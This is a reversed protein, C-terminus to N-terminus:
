FTVKASAVFRSDCAFLPGKCFNPSTPQNGVNPIDTDWYRFDIALKDLGLTVGANWYMYSDKGNAAVFPDKVDKADGMVSGLTGSVTPVIKMVAPLEYAVTGELTTTFGQGGTYQPSLFATLSTTLKPVFTASAGIKAETYDQERGQLVKPGGDKGGWYTYQIVGFDFTVPGLVPKIGAYFDVEVNALASGDNNAGFNVDSGWVGAYFIGYTMDVGGQFAPRERNQSIGRFVYDTTAGINWSYAFTRGGDAPKADKVSGPLGDALAAGAFSLSTIAAGLSAAVSSYKRMSMGKKLVAGQAGFEAVPRKHLACVFQDIDSVM